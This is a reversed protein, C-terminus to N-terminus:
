IALILEALYALERMRACHVYDRVYYYADPYVYKGFQFKGIVNKSWNAL